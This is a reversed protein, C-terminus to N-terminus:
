SPTAGMAGSFVGSTTAASASCKAATASTLSRGYIVNAYYSKNVVSFEWLERKHIYAGRLERERIYGGQQEWTHHFQVCNKEDANSKVRNRGPTTVYFVILPSIGGM